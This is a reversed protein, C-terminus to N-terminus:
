LLFSCVLVPIGRLYLYVTRFFSHTPAKMILGIFVVACHIKKLYKFHVIVYLISQFTESEWFM